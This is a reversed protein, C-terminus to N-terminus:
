SNLKSFQERFIRRTIFNYLSFDFKRTNHSLVLVWVVLVCHWSKFLIQALLLNDAAERSLGVTEQILLVFRSLFHSRTLSCSM